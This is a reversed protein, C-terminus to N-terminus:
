LLTKTLLSFLSVVTVRREVALKDVLTSSATKLTLRVGAAPIESFTGISLGTTTEVQRVHRTLRLHAGRQHLPSCVASGEGSFAAKANANAEIALNLFRDTQNATLSRTLSVPLKVIRVLRTHRPGSADHQYAFLLSGFALPTLPLSLFLSLSSSQDATTNQDSHAHCQSLGGRSLNNIVISSFSPCAM